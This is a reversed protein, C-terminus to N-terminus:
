QERQVQPCFHPCCRESGSVSEQTQLSVGLCSHSLCWISLHGWSLAGRIRLVTVKLASTSSTMQPGPLHFFFFGHLDHCLPAKFSSVSRLAWGVSLCVFMCVLMGQCCLSVCLCWCVSAMFAETFMCVLVQVRLRLWLCAVNWANGVCM